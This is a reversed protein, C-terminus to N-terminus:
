QQNKNLICFRICKQNPFCSNRNVFTSTITLNLVTKNENICQGITHFICYTVM